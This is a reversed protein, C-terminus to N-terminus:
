YDPKPTTCAHCKLLCLIVAMVTWKRNEAEEWVLSRHSYFVADDVEDQKRPGCHLFVWDKAAMEGFKHTVRYGQLAKLKELKEEEPGTYNKLRRDAVIVNAGKCAERPDTTHVIQTGYQKALHEADKSVNQCTDLTKRSAIRLNVGLKPAAMMYSHTINNSDGVWAVTLGKLGGFHEQLTQMDALIQLPHYLESLANVVPVSGEAALSEVDEHKCMRALILNVFGSLVKASDKITENVGMHIDEPSLFYSKGGLMNVGTETSLRTRISRKQFIIAAYKGELPTYVEGREKIRTKLDAATWLIQEIEPPTFDKLTLLSRGVLSVHGSKQREGSKQGLVQVMPFVKKRLMGRVLPKGRLAFSLLAM